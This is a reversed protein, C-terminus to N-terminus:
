RDTRPSAAAAGEGKAAILTEAASLGLDAQRTLPTREERWERVLAKARAVEAPTMRKQMDGLIQKGAIAMDANGSSNFFVAMYAYSKARDKPAGALAAEPDHLVGLTMLARASGQRAAAEYWPLAGAADGRLRLTEALDEQALAYGAKAAVLKWHLALAPDPKVAGEGQGAYFCGLKYAGLPDGREAALKFQELAKAPNKAAGALGLHHIMGLHYAAEGSGTAALAELKPVLASGQAAAPAAAILTLALISPLLRKM